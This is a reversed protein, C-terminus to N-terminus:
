NERLTHLNQHTKLYTTLTLNGSLTDSLFFLLLLCRLFLMSLHVTVKRYFEARCRSIVISIPQASGVCQGCISWNFCHYLLSEHICGGGEEIVYLAFFLQQGGVKDWNRKCTTLPCYRTENTSGWSSRVAPDGEGAERAQHRAGKGDGKVWM